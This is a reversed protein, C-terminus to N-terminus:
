YYKLIIGKMKVKKNPFQSQMSFTDSTINNIAHVKKMQSIIYM